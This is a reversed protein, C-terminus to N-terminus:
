IKFAHFVARGNSLNILKVNKFGAIKLMEEVCYTNMGWWTGPDNNCENTPYFRMAPYPLDLCDLHTELILQKKTIQHLKRIILFPDKMHYLIGLCLVLDWRGIKATLNRVEIEKDEVKSKLMKRAYEFGAKGSHPQFSNLQPNWLVKNQWTITDVALVKEANRREAVFSFYGDWAGIDLVTMGTLDEPMQIFKLKEPSNDRGKTKLEEFDFSHWFTIKEKDM